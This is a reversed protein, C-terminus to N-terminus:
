IFGIPKLIYKKIQKDSSFEKILQIMYEILLFHKLKINHNLKNTYKLM